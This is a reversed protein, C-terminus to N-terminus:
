SGPAKPVVIAKLEDAISGPMGMNRAFKMRGADEFYMKMRFMANIMEVRVQGGDRRIVLELPFAAAHSIGPCKFDSRSDDTGAGVIAFAKAEMAAGSVGLIVMGQGDLDLRYVGRLQWKGRPPQRLRQWVQDAARRVDAPTSGEMTTITELQEAFPGGAMVGMTKGILGRDRSQGYARNVRHGRTATAVLAAVDNVLERGSAELGSEAAITREISLPNVMAVQVGREDEFVAIRVPVAFAAPAGRALLTATHAPKQAVVVRAGYRCLLTDTGLPHDAVVSWGSRALSESVATAAASVSMPVSDAVTVYVRQAAQASARIPLAVCAASLLAGTARLLASSRM